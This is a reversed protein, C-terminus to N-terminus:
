VRTAAARAMAASLADLQLPKTIFDDMGAERCREIHDALTHASLAVIWPQNKAPSSRIRRTTELGDMGPMQVDMLVIDYPIAQLRELCAAGSDVCDVPYGLRRIFLSAVKQNVENDDVVLVKLRANGEGSPPHAGEKDEKESPTVLPLPISFHFTAGQGLRSEVGISGGMLEVLNRCIALGLGTGGHHRSTSVDAQSFPQFLRASVEPAIGPGTDRIRFNVSVTGDDQAARAGAGVEIVVEGSVTFKLANSLLNLIIQRLRHPDGRLLPPIASDIKERLAIGKEQATAKFLALSERVLRRCDFPIAELELKGSEIKSFDLIDNILSLLSVGSHHLTESWERQEPSLPSEALLTTMGLMGNLPTRIEHSMVALFDAKARNAREAEARAQRAELLSRNLEINLLERQALIALGQLIEIQAPTFARPQYDLACFSGVCHGGQAFIPIGAYARLRPHELVLPNDHFRPDQTADPIILPVDQLITHGCFSISRPVEPKDMGPSSKCWQRDADILSLSAMPVQLAALAIRTLVEFREEPPTDLILLDHLAQLRPKENLPIAPATM